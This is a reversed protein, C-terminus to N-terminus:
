GNCMQHFAKLVDLATGKVRLSAIVEGDHAWVDLIVAKDFLVGNLVADAMEPAALDPFM